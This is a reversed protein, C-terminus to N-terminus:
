FFTVLVGLLVLTCGGLTGVLTLAALAALTEKVGPYLLSGGDVSHAYHKDLLVRADSLLDSQPAHGLAWMWFAPVPLCGPLRNQLGPIETWNM